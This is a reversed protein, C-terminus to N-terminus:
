VEFLSPTGLSIFRLLQDPKAAENGKKWFDCASFLPEFEQATLSECVVEERLPLEGILCGLISLVM